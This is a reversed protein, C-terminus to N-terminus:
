CQILRFSALETMSGLMMKPQCDPAVSICTNSELVSESFPSFVRGAISHVFRVSMTKIRSNVSRSCVNSFVVYVVISSEADYTFAGLM